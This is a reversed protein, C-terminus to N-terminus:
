SRGGSSPQPLQELPNRNQQADLIGVALSARSGFSYGDLNPSMGSKGASYSECLRLNRISSLTLAAYHTGLRVVHRPDGARVAPLRALQQNMRDASRNLLIDLVALDAAM